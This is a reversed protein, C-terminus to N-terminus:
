RSTVFSSLPIKITLWPKRGQLKECQTLGNQFQKIIILLLNTESVEVKQQQQIVSETGDLRLQPKEMRSYNTDQKLKPQQNQPGLPVIPIEGM